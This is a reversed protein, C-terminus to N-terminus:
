NGTSPDSEKPSVAKDVVNIFALGFAFLMWQPYYAIINSPSVCAIMFGLFSLMLAEAVMHQKPDIVRKWCRFINIFIAIYTMVYGIFIFIGYDVLIELWWNHLSFAEGTNFSRFHSMWYPGNGPGVGFYATSSLFELGNKVLNLRVTNSDIINENFSTVSKFVDDIKSVHGMITGPLVITLFVVIAGFIVVLKQFTRNSFNILFYLGLILLVAIINARSDCIFILYISALVTFVGILRHLFKKNNSIISLSLPTSLTLFTAYNNTNSFVVTPLYMTNPLTYFELDFLHFGTFIEYFGFIIFCFFICFWIRFLNIMDEKLRFYFSFFLILSIGVFLCLISNLAHNISLIWCLGIIAYVLWICFFVVYIKIRKYPFIIDGSILIRLIFLVCLIFFLFKFPLLSRPSIEDFNFISGFFGFIFVLYCCIKEIKFM